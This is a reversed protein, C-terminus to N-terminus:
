NNWMNPLSAEIWILFTVNFFDPESEEAKKEKLCGTAVKQAVFNEVGALGHDEMQNQLLTKLVM